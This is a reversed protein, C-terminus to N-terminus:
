ELWCYNISACGHDTVYASYSCGGFGCDYLSDPAEPLKFDEAVGPPNCFTTDGYGDVFAMHDLVYPDTSCAYDDPVGGFILACADLCSYSITGPDYWPPGESISFSGIPGCQNDEGSCDNDVGDECVERVGPNVNFERDDCDLGFVAPASGAAVPFCDFGLSPGAGFGDLDGDAHWDTPVTVVPDADDCDDGITSTGAGPECALARSGPDGHGDRDLDAFFEDQSAPDITPDADDVLGDCDDDVDNCIETAGPNLQSRTDNCDDGNAVSGPPGQCALRNRNPNGYGDSDADQYWYTRTSPDVGADADDIAQDCDDDLGNCVEIQGPSVADDADDCDGGNILHIASPAKCAITPDSQLGYGDGDADPFWPIKALTEDARGNCDNDLLDCLEEATPHVSPDADDCDVNNPAEGEGPACVWGIATSGYGDADGDVYVFVEEFPGCAAPPEEECGLLALM